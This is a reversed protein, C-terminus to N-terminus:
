QNYSDDCFAIATASEIYPHHMSYVEGVLVFKEHSKRSVPQRFARYVELYICMCPAASKLALIVEWHDDVHHFSLTQLLKTSCLEQLWQFVNIAREISVKAEEAADSVPYQCDWLYMM